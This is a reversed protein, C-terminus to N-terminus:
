GFIPNFGTLVVKNGEQAQEKHLGLKILSLALAQGFAFAMKPEIYDNLTQSQLYCFVLYTAEELAKRRLDINHDHLFMTNVARVFDKCANQTIADTGKSVQIIGDTVGFFTQAQNQASRRRSIRDVDPNM